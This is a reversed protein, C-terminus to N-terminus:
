RRRLNGDLGYKKGGLLIYFALKTKDFGFRIPMKQFSSFDVPVSEEKWNIEYLGYIDHSPRGQDFSQSTTYAPFPVKSKKLTPFSGKNLSPLSGANLSPLSGPNLSPLTGQSLSPLSGKKFNFTANLFNITLGPLSGKSLSPLTGPSLSPLSGPSLTPLSGPSLNPLSGGKLGTIFEREDIYITGFSPVSLAVKHNKVGIRLVPSGKGKIEPVPLSLDLGEIPFLRFGKLDILNVPTDLDGELRIEDTALPLLQRANGPLSVGLSWTLNMAFDFNGGPSFTVSGGLSLNLFLNAIDIGGLNGPSLMLGINTLGELQIGRKSHVSMSGQWWEKGQWLLKGSLYVEAFDDAARKGLIRRLGGTGEIRAGLASLSGAGSFDFAPRKRQSIDLEGDLQMHITFFRDLWDFYPLDKGSLLVSFRARKEEVVVETNTAPRGFITVTGKGDFWFSPRRGLGGSGDLELTILNPFGYQLHGSFDCHTGSLDVQGDITGAGRFLKITAASSLDFQGNERLRLSVPHDASGVAVEIMNPLPSWKFHGNAEVYGAYGESEPWGVAVVNGYGEFPIGVDIGLVKLELSHTEAASVLAFAGNEYMKGFFQLTSNDLVTLSAGMFIYAMGVDEPRLKDEPILDISAESFSAFLDDSFLSYTGKRNMIPRNGLPPTPLNVDFDATEIKGFQHPTIKLEYVVM